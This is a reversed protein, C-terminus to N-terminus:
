KGNNSDGREKEKRTNMEAITLEFIKYLTEDDVAALFMKLGKEDQEEIVGRGETQIRCSEGCFYGNCIFYNVYNRENNM